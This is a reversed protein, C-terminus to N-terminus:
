NVLGIFHLLEKRNQPRMASRLASLLSSSPRIGDASINFGLFDITDVRQISKHENVSVKAAKLRNMVAHERSRLKSLSPAYILIDDQYIKVGVIGALISEMCHQFIASSNKLGMQLRNVKYLGGTTNIACIKSSEDDLEIQWYASKLDLKSFFKAVNLGAM